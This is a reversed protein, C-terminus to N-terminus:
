SVESVYKELLTDSNTIMNVITKEIIIADSESPVLNAHVDFSMNWEITRNTEFGDAYNDNKNVGKLIIKIDNTINLSESEKIKVSIEPNFATLIQDLIQISDDMGKCWATLTFSFIYAVPTRIKKAAGLTSKLANQVYFLGSNTSESPSRDLGTLEFSLRPFMKGIEVASQTSTRMTQEMWVAYQTKSSWTLPIRRTTGTLNGSKDYLKLKLDNFLSGFIVAINRISSKHVSKPNLVNAM